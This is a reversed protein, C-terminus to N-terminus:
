IHRTIVIKNAIKWRPKMFYVNKHSGKTQEGFFWRGVDLAPKKDRMWPWIYIKNLDKIQQKERIGRLQDSKRLINAIKWSQWRNSQSRFQLCGFGNCIVYYHPIFKMSLGGFCVTEKSVFHLIVLWRSVPCSSCFQFKFGHKFYVNVRLSGSKRLRTVAKGRMQDLIWKTKENCLSIFFYHDSIANTMPQRILCDFFPVISRWSILSVSIIRKTPLLFFQM